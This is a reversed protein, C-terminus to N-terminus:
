DGAALADQLHQLAHETTQRIVEHPEGDLHHEFAEARGGAGAVAIFVTGAPREEEPGPGGVGTVGVAIDAGFLRVAGMALESACEASIIREARVGLLDRKTATRYAVVGGSFWDSARPAAALRQAVAGATVSEACAVTRGDAQAARAVEEALDPEDPATM